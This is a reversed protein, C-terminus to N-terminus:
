FSFFLLPFYLFHVANRRWNSGSEVRLAIMKRRCVCVRRARWNENKNSKKRCLWIVVSIRKNNTKRKKWICNTYAFHLSLFFGLFIHIVLDLSAFVSRLLFSVGFFELHIRQAVPQSYSHFPLFVFTRACVILCLHEGVIAHFVTSRSTCHMVCIFM